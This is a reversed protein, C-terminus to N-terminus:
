AVGSIMAAAEGGQRLQRRLARRAILFLGSSLLLAPIVVTAISYGLKAPDRYLHETLIAILLPGTTAGFITNVLGTLAIALGRMGAPVMSQLLALTTAGTVAISVLGSTAVAMSVHM